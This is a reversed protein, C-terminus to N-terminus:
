DCEAHAPAKRHERVALGGVEDAVLVHALREPLEVLDVGLPQLAVDDGQRNVQLELKERQVPNLDYTM